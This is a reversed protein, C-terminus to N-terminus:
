LYIKWGPYMHKTRYPVPIAKSKQVHGKLWPQSDPNSGSESDQDVPLFFASNRVKKFLKIALLYSSTCVLLIKSKYQNKSSPFFKDWDEKTSRNRMPDPNLIKHSRILDIRIWLGTKYSRRIEYKQSKPARLNKSCKGLNRFKNTGTDTTPWAYIDRSYISSVLRRGTADHITSLRAM